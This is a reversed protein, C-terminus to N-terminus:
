PVERRSVPTVPPAINDPVDFHWAPIGEDQIGASRSLRAYFGQQGSNVSFWAFGFDPHLVSRTETASASFLPLNHSGNQIWLSNESDRHRSYTSSLGVGLPYLLRVLLRRLQGTPALDASPQDEWHRASDSLPTLGNALLWGDLYPDAKGRRDSVALVGNQELYVVEGGRNSRLLQEGNLTLEASLVLKGLSNNNLSFLEYELIRGPPLHLSSSLLANHGANQITEGTIPVHVLHYQHGATENHRLISCLHFPTTPSGLAAASQVQLHLHPQMSRGSNGCRALLTGPKVREGERVKISHPKLHSLLVYLNNDLRILVLNGWNNSTDVTGPTNDPLHETVRVVTGSAPSVVPLNYCYYDELEAGNNRFSQGDRRMYFDLAYRWQQRHTHRDDFGQYVDWAGFFPPLLSTSNPHGHRVRSLRLREYNQEPVGPVPALHPPSTSIRHRLILLAGLTIFIFPSIMVPWGWQLVPVQIALILPTAIVSAVLAFVLGPTGPITYFGALALTILIFNFGTWMLLEPSVDINLLQFGISGSVFGCIALVAMYRSCMLIGCLILLGAAPHPTFFIAGLTGLFADIWIINTLSASVEFQLARSVGPVSATSITAITATIVFPLSLVPLNRLLSFVNQLALTVLTCILATFVIMTFLYTNMEYFAGLSLGALLSNYIYIATNGDSFRLLLSAIYSCGTALLGALGIQPYTFTAAMFALGAWPSDLFLIAAYGRLISDISQRIQIWM